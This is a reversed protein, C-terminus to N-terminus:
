RLRAHALSPLERRVRELYDLDVSAMAVGEMDAARALVRGWPDVIMSNGYDSFGHVNPGFQAPAIV